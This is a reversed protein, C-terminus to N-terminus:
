SGTAYVRGFQGCYNVCSRDLVTNGGSLINCEEHCCQTWERGSGACIGSAQVALPAGAQWDEGEITYGAGMSKQPFINVETAGTPGSSTFMLVLGVVAIISIITTQMLEQNKAM